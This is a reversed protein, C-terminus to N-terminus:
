TVAKRIETKCEGGYVSFLPVKTHHMYQVLLTMMTFMGSFHRIDSDHITFIDYAFAIKQQIIENCSETM